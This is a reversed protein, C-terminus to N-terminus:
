RRGPRRVSSVQGLFFPFLQAVFVPSIASFAALFEWHCRLVGFLGGEKSAPWSRQSVTKASRKPASLGESGRTSGRGKQCTGTCLPFLFNKLCSFVPFGLRGRGVPFLGGGLPPRKMRSPPVPAAPRDHHLYADSARHVLRRLQCLQRGVSRGIPLWFASLCYWRRSRMANSRSFPSPIPAPSSPPFVVASAIFIM